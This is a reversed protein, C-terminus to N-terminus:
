HGGQAQEGAKPKRLLFVLPIALLALWAMSRYVEVYSFFQSQRDLVSGIQQIAADRAQPPSMGRRVLGAAIRALTQQFAPDTPGLNRRLSIPPVPRARPDGGPEALHRLERRPQADSQRARQGREDPGPKIGVYAANTIPIFLFAIGAAQFIRAIALDRYTVDLTFGSLHWLACFEIFMGIGVLWRAQWHGVLYGVLPMMVMVAFGGPTIVLGALTATYGFLEQTMQPLLQTTGFLIFGLAFMLINASIFAGSGYLRLNVIPQKRTLEWPILALLGVASLVTFTVIFRSDFWDNREGRDLVVQMCGLGLAILGFGVFDIKIGKKARAKREKTEAPPEVLLFHALLLSAIGVPVNILFIWHWSFHDCIYGGVTPGVAPAFVVAIGYIAFAAGRQSPKFTDALISQESPALGGGGIGQLIRFVVLLPLNPAFGCALSSLTFLAVCAMYFRKRGFINALWGSIPLVVANSILYSTLVWTSEDLSVALDGAIYRLAVNAISTDLVEMFTAISVVVAILWPSSGGAMSRPLDASPAKKAARTPPADDDISTTAAAATM